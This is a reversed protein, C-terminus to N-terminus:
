WDDNDVARFIARLLRRVLPVNEKPRAASQSQESAGDDDTDGLGPAGAHLQVVKAGAGGQRRGKRRLERKAPEDV